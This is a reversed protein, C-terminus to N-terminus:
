KGSNQATFIQTNNSFPLINGYAGQGYSYAQGYYASVGANMNVLNKQRHNSRVHHQSYNVHPDNSYGQNQVSRNQLWEVKIEYGIDLLDNTWDVAKNNKNMVFLNKVNQPSLHIHITGEPIFENMNEVLIKPIIRFSVNAEKQSDITLILNKKYAVLRVLSSVPEQIKSNIDIM